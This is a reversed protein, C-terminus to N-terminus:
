HRYARWIAALINSYDDTWPKVDPDHAPATWNNQELLKGFNEKRPAAVIVTSGVAGDRIQAESLENSRQARSLTQLGLKDAIAVVFPELDMYRNSIHFILMGRASLKTLYTEVAEQTLLHVPIADSSFADLQIVDFVGREEAITLRADGVVIRATPACDRMYRFLRADTALEVIQSDIEFFNWKEAGEQFCAITGIGLGAIAVSPLEGGAVGRAASIADRIPSGETYYTSPRPRAPLPSGDKEAIRIGGHNTSGHSLIRFQANETVLVKKVGFFSRVSLNSENAGVSALCAFVLGVAIAAREPKSRELWIVSVAAVVVISMVYINDAPSQTAMFHRAILYALAAALVFFIANQLRSRLSMISGRYPMCLFSAVILIPYEAVTSFINPAILGTFIGGLVGGLSIYFYFQTLQAFPPRKEYLEGHCVLAACFLMLLNAILLGSLSVRYFIEVILLGVVCIPYLVLVARHPILPRNRFVCVFTLLFLALPAVWLLPATAIDTSIHATVAVLLASPVFALAIWELKQKAGLPATPEAKIGISVHRANWIFLGCCGIVCILLGYGISWAFAQQKLSLFPEIGVPYLLLALFSGLNSAGYLFYPEAAHPHGTRAFWAQLLPGNTSVAFFPLGVSVAFVSLLWFAEGDVPPRGAGAAISIPLAVAALAMLAMHLVVAVKPPLYTSILHAYGYGLLLLGQFFVMAVSWVAPTGGLQPLVMKTFMPQISFLLFASVFISVVFTGLCFTSSAIRRDAIQLKKSIPSQASVTM